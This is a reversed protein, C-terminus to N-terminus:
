TYKPWPILGGVVAKLRNSLISSDVAYGILTNKLVSVFPLIADDGVSNATFICSASLKYIPWGCSVFLTTTWCSNSPVPEKVPYLKM